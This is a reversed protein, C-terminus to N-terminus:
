ARVHEATVLQLHFQFVLECMRSTRLNTSFTSTFLSIWNLIVYNAQYQQAEGAHVPCCMFVRFTEWLIAQVQEACARAVRSKIKDLLIRWRLWCTLSHMCSVFIGHKNRMNLKKKRNEARESEVQCDGYAVARTRRSPWGRPAWSPRSFTDPYAPLHNNPNIRERFIASKHKRPQNILGCYIKNRAKTVERDRKKWTELFSSLLFLSTNVAFNTFVNDKKYCM